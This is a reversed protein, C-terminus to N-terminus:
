HSDSNRHDNDLECVAVTMVLPYIHTYEVFGM